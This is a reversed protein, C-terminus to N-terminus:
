RKKDISFVQGITDEIRGFSAKELSGKAFLFVVESNYFEPPNTGGPSDGAVVGFSIMDRRYNVDIRSPYVKEGARIYRSRQKVALICVQNPTHLMGDVYKSPCIVGASRAVGLMGATQVTLVAGKEFVSRGDADKTIRALQYRMVLRAALSRAPAAQATAILVLVALMRM